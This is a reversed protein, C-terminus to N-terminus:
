RSRAQRRAAVLAAADKVSMTQDLKRSLDRLHIDQDPARAMPSGPRQVTKVSRVAKGKASRRSLEYSASRYLAKQAPLSRLYPTNWYQNIQEPTYGDEQLLQMAFRSIENVREPTDQQKAWDDFGKDCAAAEHNFAAQYQAQQQQAQYQQAKQSREVV